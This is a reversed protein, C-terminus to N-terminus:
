CEKREVGQNYNEELDSTVCKQELLLNNRSITPWFETKEFVQTKNPKPKSIKTQTQSM